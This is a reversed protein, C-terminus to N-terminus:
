LIGSSFMILVQIKTVVPLSLKCLIPTPLVVVMLDQLMNIISGSLALVHVNVCASDRAMESKSWINDVPWCQFAFALNYALGFLVDFIIM